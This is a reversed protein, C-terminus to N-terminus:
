AFTEDTQHGFADNRTYWYNLYLIYNYLKGHHKSSYSFAVSVYICVCVCCANFWRRGNRMGNAEIWKRILANAIREQSFTFINWFISNIWELGSWRVIKTYSAYIWITLWLFTKQRSLDRASFENGCVCIYICVLLYVCVCVCQWAYLLVFLM